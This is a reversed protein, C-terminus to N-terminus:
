TRGGRESLVRKMEPSVDSQTPAEFKPPEATRTTTKAAIRADFDAMMARVQDADPKPGDVPRPAQALRVAAQARNFRQIARNPTTLALERLKGPKPMFESDPDAVYAKMAAELSVLSLGALAEFYDAWWAEWEADNRKPQPYLAFRPAIVQTVGENGAKATVVERLAPLAQECAELLAPVAVIQEAAEEASGCEDLLRRLEEPLAPTTTTALSSSPTPTLENM